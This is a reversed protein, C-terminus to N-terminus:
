NRTIFEHMNFVTRTVSFWAALEATDIDKSVTSLGIGASNASSTSGHNISLTKGASVVGM